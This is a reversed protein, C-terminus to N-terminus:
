SLQPSPSIAELLSHFCARLFVVPGACFAFLLERLNRRFPLPAWGTIGIPSSRLMPSRIVMVDKM